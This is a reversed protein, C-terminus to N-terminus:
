GMTFLTAIRASHIRHTNSCPLARGYVGVNSQSGNESVGVLGANTQDFGKDYSTFIADLLPSTGGVVM